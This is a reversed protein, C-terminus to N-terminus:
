PTARDVSYAVRGEAKLGDLYDAWSQMMRAREPLFRTRAYANGLGSVDPARHALQHEIVLPDFGCQEHGLTRLVARWGHGTLESRTDIGLRRMSANLAADSMPKLPTRGGPFVWGGPLHASLPEMERLISAAQTSLPVIHHTSTKSVRYAWQAADLDVDDWRMTRLEGPRAAVYPLLRVAAVVQPQGSLADFMRLIAGVAVPDLPAPMHTVAVSPIFGQLPVTPDNEARGYIVAYRCVQGINVRAKKAIEVAGRSLIADLVGRVDAPTLRAIPVRGIRPFVDKELARLLNRRYKETRQTLMREHWERAVAEFSDEAQAALRAKNAQKEAGPDIGGALLERAADRRKRAEALSVAPYVGLAVRKEKGGFRYKLRWLKGGAPSVECYLGGGDFLKYPKAQATARRLTLDNLM